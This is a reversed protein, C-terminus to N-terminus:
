NLFSMVPLLVNLPPTALLVINPSLPAGVHCMVLFNGSRFIRVHM